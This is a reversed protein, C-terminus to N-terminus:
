KRVRYHLHTVGEGELVRLRELQRLGFGLGDFLRTGDGLLFPVQHLMLEDLLGAKLAMPVLTKGGHMMVNRPGAAAKAERMAMGLDDIYHVNKWQRVWDPAAHRSVIFIEVGDHHDGNWGGAPEFTNRGAIVAGTAMMEDWVQRNAGNLRAEAAEFDGGAAGPFAWDHLHQGQDGLGNDPRANPGTIFGDASMSMYLVSAAM